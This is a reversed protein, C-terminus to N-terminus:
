SSFVLDGKLKGIDRVDVAKVLRSSFMSTEKDLGIKMHNKKFSHKALTGLIIFKIVFWYSGFM